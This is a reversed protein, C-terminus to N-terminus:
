REEFVSYFEVQIFDDPQEIEPYDTYGESELEAGVALLTETLEMYESQKM